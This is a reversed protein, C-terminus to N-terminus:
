PVIGLAAKEEATLKALAAAKLDRKRYDQYEAFSAFVRPARVKRVKANTGMVGQKNAAREADERNVFFAITVDFGRGETLDSNTYAEWYESAKNPPFCDPGGCIKNSPNCWCM